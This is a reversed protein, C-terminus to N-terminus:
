PGWALNGIKRGDEILCEIIDQDPYVLFLGKGKDEYRGVIVVRSGDPSWLGTRIDFEEKLIKEPTTVNVDSRNLSFLIEQPPRFDTLFVHFYYLEGSASQYPWGFFNISHGGMQDPILLTQSGSKADFRWFGPITGTFWQTTVLVYQSDASWSYLCCVAGDSKLRTFPEEAGPQMVALTHGEYYSMTIILRSGDPSWAGPAYVEKEYVFTEGLLNGFNVLVQEDKGTSVKYLHIGNLGYALTKGNPSFSPKQIIKNFYTEEGTAIVMDGDAIMQRNRGKADMIFLKNNTIYAVDGKSSVAFNGVGLPEETIQKRTIGDRELRWVQATEDSGDLYYLSNQLPKGAGNCGALISSTLIILIFISYLTKM